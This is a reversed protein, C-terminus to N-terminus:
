ELAGIARDAELQLRHYNRRLVRLGLVILVAVAIVTMTGAAQSLAEIRNGLLYGGFGFLSAWAVAGLAHFIIFRTMDMRNVGALLAALTRLLAVFRGFFVVAAGHRRFLYQGLRLKPEDLHLYRHYRRVIPYGGYRGILFGLFGGAIVGLVAVLVLPGISFQHTRGAYVAATILVTEGPFPLALSELAIVTFVGAYGYAVLWHILHALM